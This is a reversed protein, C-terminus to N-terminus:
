SFLDMQHDSPNDWGLKEAELDLWDIVVQEATELQLEEYFFHSRYGTETVPLPQDCKLELHHAHAFKNPTYTVEIEIGRWTVQFETGKKQLVRRALERGDHERERTISEEGQHLNGTYRM